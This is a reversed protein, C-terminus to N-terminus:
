RGIIKLSFLYGMARHRSYIKSASWLNWRVITMHPKIMPAHSQDINIPKEKNERAVDAREQLNSLTLILQEAAIPKILERLSEYTSHEPIAQPFLFIM